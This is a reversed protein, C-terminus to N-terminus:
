SELEIGSEFIMLAFTQTRSGFSTEFSYAEFCFCLQSVSFHVEPAAKKWEQGEEARGPGVAGPGGGLGAGVPHHWTVLDGGLAAAGVGVGQGQAARLHLAALLDNHRQGVRRFSRDRVEPAEHDPGPVFCVFLQHSLEQNFLLFPSVKKELFFTLLDIEM